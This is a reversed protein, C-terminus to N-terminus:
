SGTATQSQTIAQLAKVSLVKSLRLKLIVRKGEQQTITSAIISQPDESLVEDNTDVFLIEEVEDVLFGVLYHHVHCVIMKQETIPKQAQIDLRQALNVVPLISGRLNIVGEVFAPPEPVPTITQYKIIEQVDEIEFAYSEEGISFVAVELMEDMGKANIGSMSDLASSKSGELVETSSLAKHQVLEQVFQASIVSLVQQQENEQTTNQNLQYLGRIKATHSTTEIQNEAIEIAEEVQEVALALQKGAQEIVLYRTQSTPKLPEFGLVQNFDLVVLLHGRLSIVGLMASDEAQIPTLQESAFVLERVIDAQLAFLEGGLYFTLFLAADDLGRQKSQSKQMSAAKALPIKLETPTFEFHTGIQFLAAISLLQITEQEDQYVGQIVEPAASTQSFKKADFDYVESIRDVVLSLHVPHQDQFYVFHLIRAEPAQLDTAQDQLALGLDIVTCTKGELVAVGLIAKSTAPVPAIPPIRQISHVQDADLGFKQGAIDFSLLTEM